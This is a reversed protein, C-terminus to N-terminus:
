NSNCGFLIGMVDVHHGISTNKIHAMILLHFICGYLLITMLGNIRTPIEKGMILIGMIPHIVMFQIGHKSGLVHIQNIVLLWPRKSHMDHPYVNAVILHYVKKNSKKMPIVTPHLKPYCGFWIIDSLAQVHSIQAGVTPIFIPDM